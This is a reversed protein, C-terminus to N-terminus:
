FLFNKIEKILKQFDDEPYCYFLKCKNEDCLRKKREDREKQIKFAKEGGFYDIPRQHQEGQYEIAIKREPFYIDLHQKGLWSPSAHHIVKEKLFSKKIKYYLETESIWGEGVRPIGCNERYINESERLLSRIKKNLALIIMDPIKFEHYDLSNIKPVGNFIRENIIYITEIDNFTSKYSEFMQEFIEFMGDEFIEKLKTLNNGFNEEITSYKINVNCFDLPFNEINNYFYEYENILKLFEDPELLSKYIELKNQDLESITIMHDYFAAYKLFDELDDELEIFKKSGWHERLRSKSKEDLKLLNLNGITRIKTKSYDKNLYSKKSINFEDSDEFFEEFKNFDKEEFNAFDIDKFLYKLVNEGKEQEFEILLKDIIPVLNEKEKLGFDTLLPKKLKLNILDKGTVSIDKNKSIAIGYNEFDFIKFGNKAKIEKSIEFKELYFYADALWNILYKNLNEYYSGYVREIKDFRNILDNINENLIFDYIASYLYVFIYSLNGNLDLYIDKELNEAWYNYFQIQETNASEIDAFEQDWIPVNEVKKLEIVTKLENGCEICFRNKPDNKKGCDTCITSM